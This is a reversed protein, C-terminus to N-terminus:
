VRERCSARGIEFPKLLDLGHLTDKMNVMVGVNNILGNKVSEYTGYNVGKSYGLDDARIIINKM